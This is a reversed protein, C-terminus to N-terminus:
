WHAPSCPAGGAWGWPSSSLHVLHQLLHVWVRADRGFGKVDHVRKDIADELEYGSLLRAANGFAVSWWMESESPRSGAHGLSSSLYWPRWWTFWGLLCKESKIEFSKKLATCGKLLHTTTELIRLSLVISKKNEGLRNPVHSAWTLRSNGNKKGWTFIVWM